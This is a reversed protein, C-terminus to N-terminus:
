NQMPEVHIHVSEINAIGEQIKKSIIENIKEIRETSCDLNLECHLFITIKEGLQYLKIDHCNLKSRTKNVLNDILEVLDQRRDTIDEALINRQKVYEFYVSVDKVETLNIRVLDSIEHSLQHSENLNM